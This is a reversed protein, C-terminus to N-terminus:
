QREAASADLAEVLRDLLATLQAMAEAGLLGTWRGDIAMAIEYGTRIAAWGDTTLLVLRARRDTPHPVREVLGMAELNAVSEAMAQKTMGARRALEAVTTGDADVLIMVQNMAVTAAPYQQQIGTLLEANFHAWADRLGRGVFPRGGRVRRGPHPHPADM